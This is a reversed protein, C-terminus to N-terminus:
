LPSFVCRCSRGSITIVCNSFVFQVTESSLAVMSGGRVSTILERQPFQRASRQSLATAAPRTGLVGVLRQRCYYYCHPRAAGERFLARPVYLLGKVAGAELIEQLM